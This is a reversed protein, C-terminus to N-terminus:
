LFEITNVKVVTSIIVGYYYTIIIGSHVLNYIDPVKEAPPPATSQPVASCVPLDHTRNGMTVSSNKM